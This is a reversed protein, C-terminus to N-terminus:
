GNKGGKELMDLCDQHTMSRSRLMICCVGECLTNIEHIEKAFKRLEIVIQKGSARWIIVVGEKDEGEDESEDVVMNSTTFVHRYKSSEKCSELNGMSILLSYTPLMEEFEVGQDLQNSSLRERYSTVKKELDKVVYKQMETSLLFPFPEGNEDVADVKAAIDLLLKKGGKRNKTPLRRSILETNLDYAGNVEGKSNMVLGEIMLECFRPYHRCVFKFIPDYDLALLGPNETRSFLLMLKRKIEAKSM